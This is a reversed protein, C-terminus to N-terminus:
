REAGGLFAATGIVARSGIEADRELKRRSRGLIDRLLKKLMAPDSEALAKATEDGAEQFFRNKARQLGRAGAAVIAVGPTARVGPIFGEIQEEAAQASGRPTPVNRSTQSIRAEVAVKDLFADAEAPKDYFLARIRDSQETRKGFLNEGFFKKAVDTRENTVAGIDDYLRQAAGIRYFEREMPKMDRLERQIIAAPKRIFDRGAEVAEQASSFDSWISRAKAYEPVNADAITLVGELRTRWARVLKNNPPTASRKAGQIVQDLGLKMYDLARVPIATPFEEEVIGAKALIERAKDRTLSPNAKMIADLQSSGPKPLKPVALGHGVGDFDEEMAIKRGAVYAKRMLPNELLRKLEGTVPVTQKFAAEYKPAALRSRAKVLLTELDYANRLGFRTKGLTMRLLESSLREGQGAQRAMAQEFFEQTAPSAHAVAERLFHEVNRGGVEALSIPSGSRAMDDVRQLAKDLDLGDALFARALGERSHAEPTGAGSIRQVFTSKTARATPKLIAGATRGVLTMAGGAVGGVSAGFAAGELRNGAEAEGAGALAGSAAGQGISAMIRQGVGPGGAAISRAAQTGRGVASVGKALPGGTLMGGAFESLMAVGGHEARFADLEKRFEEGAEVSSYLKEVAEDAWGFTAGNLAALSIGRIMSPTETEPETVEPLRSFPMGGPETELKIFADVDGDNGGEAYIRDVQRMLYKTHGPSLTRQRRPPALTSASSM